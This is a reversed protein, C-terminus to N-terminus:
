RKVVPTALASEPKSDWYQDAKQHIQSAFFGGVTLPGLRFLGGKWLAAAGEKKIIEKFASSFSVGTGNSEHQLTAIRDVPQSAASGIIGTIASTLVELTPGEEMNFHIKLESKVWKVVSYMSGAYTGDRVMLAPGGYTFRRWGQASLFKVADRPTHPLNEKELFHQAVIINGAPTAATTGIVGGTIAFLANYVPSNLHPYSHALSVFVYNQLMFTPFSGMCYPILGQFAFRPSALQLWTLPKDTKKRTQMVYRLGYPPYCIIDSLAIFLGTVLGKKAAHSHNNLVPTAMSAMMTKTSSDQDEPKDSKRSNTM